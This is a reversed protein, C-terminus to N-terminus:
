GSYRQRLADCNLLRELPMGPSYAIFNGCGSPDTEEPAARFAKWRHQAGYERVPYWESIAIQYGREALLTFMAATEYGLPKTKRNEYECVICEPM